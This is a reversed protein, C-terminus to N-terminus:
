SARKGALKYFHDECVKLGDREYLFRTEGDRCLACLGEDGFEPLDEVSAPEYLTKLPEVVPSIPNKEKSFSLFRKLTDEQYQLLANMAAARYDERSTKEPDWGQFVFSQAFGHGTPVYYYMGGFSQREGRWGLRKLVVNLTSRSPQGLLARVVDSPIPKWDSREAYGLLKVMMSDIKGM